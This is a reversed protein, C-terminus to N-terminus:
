VNLSISDGNEANDAIKKNTTSKESTCEKNIQGNNAEM